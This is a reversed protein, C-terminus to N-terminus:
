NWIDMLKKKNINWNLCYLCFLSSSRITLGKVGKTHMVKLLNMVYFKDIDHKIQTFESSLVQRYWAHDKLLESSLVKRYWADDRLLSVLCFKAIDLMIKSLLFFKEINNAIKSYVRCISSEQKEHMNKKTFKGYLVKKYSLTFLM